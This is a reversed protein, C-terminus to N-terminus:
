LNMRVKLKSSVMYEIQDSGYGLGGMKKDAYVYKEINGDWFRELLSWEVELIVVENRQYDLIAIKYTEM